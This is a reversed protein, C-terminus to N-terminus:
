TALFLGIKKGLHDRFICGCAANLGIVSGYTNVKLWPPSPPKWVITVIDRVRRRHPSVSFSDLFSLKSALCCGSSTNGSMTVLYDIKVKAAHISVKVNSFRFNNRSMWIAHLTHVITAVFM